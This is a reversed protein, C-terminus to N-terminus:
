APETVRMGTEVKGEYQAHTLVHLIYVRGEVARDDGRQVSYAIRTIVRINNGGVNFVVCCEYLSAHAFTTRVENFSFWQARSVTKHWGTLAAEHDPHRDFFERIAKFSIVRM